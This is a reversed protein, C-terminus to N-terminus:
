FLIFVARHLASAIRERRRFTLRYIVSRRFFLSWFLLLDGEVERHHSLYFPFLLWKLDRFVSVPSRICCLGQQWFLVCASLFLTLLFCLLLCLTVRKKNEVEEERSATSELYRDPWGNCYHSLLLMKERTAELKQQQNSVALRGDCKMGKPCATDEVVCELRDVHIVTRSQESKQRRRVWESWWITLPFWDGSGWPSEPSSHINRGISSTVRIWSERPFLFVYVGDVRFCPIM